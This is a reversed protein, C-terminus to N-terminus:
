VQIKKTNIIRLCFGVLGSHFLVFMPVEPTYLALGDIGVIVPILFAIFCLSKISLDKDQFLSKICILSPYFFISLFIILGLFGMEGLIHPWFTDLLTFGQDSNIFEPGNSGIKDIGYEFYIPSYYNFISATSGFSGMGSGFPFNELAISFSTLYMALRVHGEAGVDNLYDINVQLDYLIQQSMYVTIIPLIIILFFISIIKVRLSGSLIIFISWVLSAELISKKLGTIFIFTTFIVAIYLWLINKDKLLKSLSLILGINLILGYAGLERFFNWSYNGASNISLDRLSSEGSAILSFIPFISLLFIIYVLNKIGNHVYDEKINISYAMLFILSFSFTLVFGLLQNIWPTNSSTNFISFLFLISLLIFYNKLILIKRSFLLWFTAFLILSIVYKFGSFFNLSLLNQFWEIFIISVFLVIFGFFSGSVLKNQYHTSKMFKM